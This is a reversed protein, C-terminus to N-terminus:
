RYAFLIVTDYNAQSSYSDYNEIEVKLTTNYRLHHECATLGGEGETIDHAILDGYSDYMETDLDNVGRESVAVVIYENGAFARSTFYKTKGEQISTNFTKIVTYGKATLALKASLAKEALSASAINNSVTRSYQAQVSQTSLIIAFLAIFFFKVVQM